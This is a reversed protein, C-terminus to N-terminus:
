LLQIISQAIEAAVRANNLLLGLNAKMSAGDTLENVKELLFPTVNQGHVNNIQAEILAKQIAQDVVEAPLAVKEPPPVTVLIATKFGLGWHIKAFNVIEEASDARISTKLGSSPSYFAPFEETQYGIVPIGLTEMMELTAPLNLIAKAGACVVIMPINALTYLDTSIDFSPSTISKTDRHVGGIGGTAFVTIGAQSAVFMTGAVTTGGSKGKQLAFTFDRLSVKMLGKENALRSLQTADAGVHIKGDMIFVTAPTVGQDRIEQEMDQALKLNEPYPLGHTIVTSELAVIPHHQKFAQQVENSFSIDILDKMM